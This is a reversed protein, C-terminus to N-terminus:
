SARNSNATMWSQYTFYSADTSASSGNSAYLTYTSATSYTAGSTLFTMGNRSDWRDDTIIGDKVVRCHVHGCKPCIIEHNGNLSVDIDFQVYNECKHCWLEQREKM